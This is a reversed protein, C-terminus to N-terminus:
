CLHQAAAVTLLQRALLWVLQRCVVAGVKMVWVPAAAPPDVAAGEVTDTSIFGGSLCM